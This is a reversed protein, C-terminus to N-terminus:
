LGVTAMQQRVAEVFETANNCYNIDIVIPLDCSRCCWPFFDAARNPKLEVRVTSPSALKTGCDCCGAKYVFGVEEIENIDTLAIDLDKKPLCVYNPNFDVLHLTTPTLYMQWIDVAKSGCLKGVLGCCPFCVHYTIYSVYYKYYSSVQQKLLQQACVGAIIVPEGNKNLHQQRPQTASVEFSSM